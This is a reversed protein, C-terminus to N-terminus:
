PTPAPLTAELVFGGDTTPEARLTGGFLSVREQVGVLGHGGGLAQEVTVSRGNSVRIEITGSRLRVSVAVPSGPAYKLANTLAEQVIRYSSLEVAAPLPGVGIDVSLEVAVGLRRFEAVLEPLDALSRQPRLGLEDKDDRILRLLHATEALADRGSQQVQRAAAVAGDPDARVLDEALSAQVVMVSLSHALVDHLERAIREREAAAALQVVHRAREAEAALERSRELARRLVYGLSWPGVTFVLGFILDPSFDALLELTLMMVVLAAGLSALGAPVRPAHLGVAFAAFAVPLIWSAPADLEVGLLAALVQAAAVALPMALPYRRRFVLAVCALWYTGISAWLPGYGQVVMEATGVAGFAVPLVADQGRPDFRSVGRVSVWGRRSLM